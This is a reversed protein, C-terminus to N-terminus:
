FPMWFCCTGCSGTRKLVAVGRFGSRFGIPIMGSMCGIPIGSRLGGDKTECNNFTVCEGFKFAVICSGRANCWRRPVAGGILVGEYRGECVLVSIVWFLADGVTGTSAIFIGMGPACAPAM